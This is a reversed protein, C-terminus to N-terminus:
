RQTQDPTYFDSSPRSAHLPHLLQRCHRTAAATRGANCLRTLASSSAAAGCHQQTASPASLRHSSPKQHIARFEFATEDHCAALSGLYAGPSTRSAPILGWGGDSLGRQLIGVTHNSRERDVLNLKDMAATVVRDDFLRAEDDISIPAICRLLYHMSPVMSQRLLLLASQVSLESMQIRRLFADHAGSERLISAVGRRIADDDRGVVAGVAQAWEHHYEINSDSLVRRVEESLPTLHDHFYVFHSKSTNLQSLIAPLTTQLQELAKMLQRPTGVLRIDDFFGYAKVGSTESVQQLVERMYVCFLLPSLPDGQRVGQKSTIAQGACGQLLLTSPQAYAFDAFRFITQLQPLAYLQSLLRARDCSNFANSIDVQLMAVRTSTDTLEQQVSHLIREAGSQVGVGYQHPALLQAAPASVKRMATVAALRYMLEGVAIPRCGTTPKNLAVLRSALLLERAESPLSGNIIDRLLAIIGLRCIESPVLSSLMNGCWGLPGAASGNNSGCIIRRMDDDDEFVTPPATTPLPPIISSPPPVPHLRLMEQQAAETRLDAMDTTSRLVQAAKRMLGHETLYQARIAAKSDPGVSLSETRRTLTSFLDDDTGNNGDQSQRCENRTAAPALDREGSSGDREDQEDNDTDADTTAAASQEKIERVVATLVHRDTRKTSAGTTSRQRATKGTSTTNAMTATSLPMRQEERTDVDSCQYRSRLQEAFTHYRRQMAKRTRRRANRGSRGLKCLLRAPLQLIDLLISNLRGHEGKESAVRYANWLPENAARWQPLNHFSVDEYLPGHGAVQTILEPADRVGDTTHAEQRTVLVADRDHGVYSLSRRAPGPIHRASLPPRQKKPADPPVTSSKSTQCTPVIETTKAGCEVQQELSTEKKERAEEVAEAATVATQVESEARSLTAVSDSATMVMEEGTRASSVLPVPQLGMMTWKEEDDEVVAQPPHTVSLRILSTILDHSSPFVRLGDYGVCEYHRHSHYIVIHKDHGEGIRRCRVDMGQKTATCYVVFVGVEYQVSALYFICHDLHTTPAQGTLM